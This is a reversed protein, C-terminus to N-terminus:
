HLNNHYRNLLVIFEGKTLKDDFYSRDSLIGNDMGWEWADEGWSPIENLSSVFYPESNIASSSSNNGVRLEFHLHAGKSNGTNGGKGIVKGGELYEGTKVYVEELHGYLTYYGNHDIIVYNGFPSGKKYNETAKWGQSWYFWDAGNTVSQIVTGNQSAIIDKKPDNHVRFDTGKHYSLYMSSKAGFSQTVYPNRTPYLLKM